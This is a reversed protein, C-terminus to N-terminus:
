ARRPGHDRVLADFAGLAAQASREWSFERARRLGRRALEERLGQDELLEQLRDRLELPAHPSFFLGADGVVEPLAGARSAVVPIGCAMAELAPLGFGEAFSPLVLVESANYFHVLEPDPVFGTFVVHGGLGLRAVRDRVAPYNSHFVNEQIDGVIVLKASGPGPGRILSAYADILTELNKHPAIGGVYLVVRDEGHLGYRALVRATQARDGLPRFGADVADPVVKVRHEIVGFTRIIDAKAAESVTFILDARWLAWRTKLTWLLRGRRTPFILEPHREATTDHL